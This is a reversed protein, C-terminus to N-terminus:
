AARRLLRELRERDRPSTFDKRYEELPFPTIAELRAGPQELVAEAVLCDAGAALASVGTWTLPATDPRDWTRDLVDILAHVARSVRAEDDLARQGTVGVRLESPQM